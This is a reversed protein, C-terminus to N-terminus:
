AAGGIRAHITHARATFGSALLAHFTGADWLALRSEFDPDGVRNLGILGVAAVERLLGALHSEAQAVGRYWAVLDTPDTAYAADKESRASALSAAMKETVWRDAM